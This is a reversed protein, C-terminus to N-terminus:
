INAFGYCQDDLLNGNEDYVRFYTWYYGYQPQWVAWFANGQEVSIKGTSWVWPPKGQAYLSCDMILLEYQLKQGPNKNTEVGILYGGGSGTYPMQCKGKIKVDSYIRHVYGIVASDKADGGETEVECLILYEGDKKPCWTLWQDNEKWDKEVRWQGQAIDYIMWRYRVNVRKDTVTDMRCIVQNNTHSILQISSSLIKAAKTVTVVCTAKKSGCAATITATGSGVATIKGNGDVTAVSTNSSSWRITKDDTTYSPRYTVKLQATKGKDLTIATKDLIIQQLPEEGNLSANSTYAKIRFTSRSDNVADVWVDGVNATKYFSTGSAEKTVFEIWTNVNSRDIYVGSVKDFTFVVSFKQGEKISVPANLPITHYGSYALTGKQSAVKTGSSPDSPNTLDTYIDVTYSVNNDFIGIGVAELKEAGNANAKATFVNAFYKAYSYSTGSAGDYQYINDYNDGKECVYAFFNDSISKDYYSLWFYGNQAYNGGEEGWSNKVLWAGDGDPTSEFKDKSFNDDWGVVQVAHNTGRNDDIYFYYSDNEPNDCLKSITSYYAFAMSGYEMILQKIVDKNEKNVIYANQLHYSDSGYVDATTKPLATTIGTYPAKSENALGAWSALHWMTYMSNGGRNIYNEGLAKNYDGTTGGLVDGVAGKEYFYYVLHRESLDINTGALGKSILGSESAGVAAFAWCTGDNGQNRLAPVKGKEVSSYYSPLTGRNAYVTEESRTMVPVPDEADHYTLLRETEPTDNEPIDNEPIDERSEEGEDQGSEIANVANNESVAESETQVPLSAAAAMNPALLSVILAISLTKLLGKKM